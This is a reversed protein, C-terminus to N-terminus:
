ERDAKPQKAPRHLQYWDRTIPRPTMRGSAADFFVAGFTLQGDVLLAKVLSAAALAATENVGFGQAAFPMAACSPGVPGAKRSRMLSPDVGAMDPLIEMRHMGVFPRLDGRFDATEPRIMNDAWKASVKALAAPDHTCGLVAQGTSLGNGVDLWWGQHLQAVLRRSALNDTCTIVLSGSLAAGPRQRSYRDRAANEQRLIKESFHEGVAAVDIAFRGSLRLALAAAKNWGIECPEFNQRAINAQEVTDGDWLRLGMAPMQFGVIMRCLLEALRAGTGGCGILEIRSPRSWEAILVGGPHRAAKATKRKRTSRPM